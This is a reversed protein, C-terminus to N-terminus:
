ENDLKRPLHVTLSELYNNTRGLGFRISPIQLTSGTQSMQIGTRPALEGSLLTVYFSACGGIYETNMLLDLHNRPALLTITLFFADYGYNNYVPQITLYRGKSDEKQVEAIFDLNGDEFIDIFSIRTM